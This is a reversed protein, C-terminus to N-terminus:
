NMKHDMPMAPKAGKPKLKAMEAIEGKQKAATQRAIEKIEAHEAKTVAEESAAVAMSHHNTMMDLFMRDFEAGKAGQLKSLDMKMDMDMNMDKPMNEHMKQTMSEHLKDMQAKDMKPKGAYFHDRHGQLEEIDKQQDTIIRTALSKVGASESRSDALRSMEIGEQHHVIMMDIFQLDYPMDGTPAPSPQQQKSTTEAQNTNVSTSCGTYIGLALILGIFLSVRMVKTQKIKM